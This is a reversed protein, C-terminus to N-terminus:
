MGSGQRCASACGQYKGAEQETLPHSTVARDGGSSYLRRGQRRFPRRAAGRHFRGHLEASRAAAHELEMREMGPSATQLRGPSAGESKGAGDTEPWTSLRREPPGGAAPQVIQAWGIAIAVLRTGARLHRSRALRRIGRLFPPPHAIALFPLRPSRSAGMLLRGIDDGADRCGSGDATDNPGTVPFGIRARTLAPSMVALCGCGATDAGAGTDPNGFWRPALRSRSRRKNPHRRLATM